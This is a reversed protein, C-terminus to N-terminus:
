FCGICKQNVDNLQDELIIYDQKCFMQGFLIFHPKFYFLLKKM